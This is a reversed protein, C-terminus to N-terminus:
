LSFHRARKYADEPAFATDADRKGSGARGIGREEREPISIPERWVGYGYGYWNEKRLEVNCNCRKRFGISKCKGNDM